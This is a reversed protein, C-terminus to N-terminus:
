ARAARIRAARVGAIALAAIAGFLAPLPLAPLGTLVLGGSDYATGSGSSVAFDAVLQNAANRVEIGTLQVQFASDIVSTATPGNSYALLGLHFSFPTGFVIPIAHTRVVDSGSLSGPALTFGTLTGSDFNWTFFPSSTSGQSQSRMLLSPGVGNVRYYVEVDATPFGPGPVTTLSLGGTVTSLFRITGSAGNAISPSTITFVDRALAMGEAGKYSASGALAAHSSARVFGYRSHTSALFTGVTSLSSEDSLPGAADIKSNMSGALGCFALGPGPVFVGSSGFYAFVPAASGSTSCGTAGNTNGAEALVFTELQPQASAAVSLLTVAMTAAVLRVSQVSAARMALARRSPDLRRICSALM